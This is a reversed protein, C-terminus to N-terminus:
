VRMQLAEHGRPQSMRCCTNTTSSTQSFNSRMRRNRVQLTCADILQVLSEFSFYGVQFAADGKHALEHATLHQQTWFKKSCGAESCIFPKEDESKHSRMHAHLHTDRLFTKQCASCPFPRQPPFFILWNSTSYIFGESNCAMQWVEGTHSRMHENLRCAKIYSKTCGPWTCGHKKASAILNNPLSPISDTETAPSADSSPHWCQAVLSVLDNVTGVTSGQIGKRKGLVVSSELINLGNAATSM